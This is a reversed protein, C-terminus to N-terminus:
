APAPVRWTPEAPTGGPASRQWAELLLGEFARTFAQPQLLPSARLRTRAQARWAALAQPEAALRTAIAVFEADSTAIWDKHGIASLLSAGMRSPHTRGALTVVPVGMWLTECTTTAGNFPFSDLAIDIERYLELHSVLDPRWPNFVLRDPAVGQAEFFQAINAQNAPEALSRTKLFLRSGPVARLVQAWLGLTHDSLKAINNFSGFSVRGSGLVPPEGTPPEADPRYCFMSHPCHLVAEAAPAPHDATDIVRDSIRFDLAPLGTVTPYGLYGIQVPAVRRAFLALRGHATHGSLDVLVDIGDDRIRAALDGDLMEACDVWHHGLSKLRATVDDEFACNHYCFVEFRAHDHCALISEVFYTVSHRRFDGSVYGVRLRDGAALARPVPRPAGSDAGRGYAAHADVLAQPDEEHYLLTMLYASYGGPHHDMLAVSERFRELAEGVRRSQSLAAAIRQLSFADPALAHADHAAQLAAASQGMDNLVASLANLVPASPPNLRLWKEFGERALDDCALKRLCHGLHVCCDEEGPEISLAENFARAAEAYRHSRMLTVGLNKHLHANRPELALARRQAAEGEDSPRAARDPEADRLAKLALANGLNAHAAALDPNIALARRYCAVAGDLDDLTKLAIGLSVQAEAFQPQLEIARRYAAVAPELADAAKLVRGHSLHFEPQEPAIAIAAIVHALAADPRNSLLAAVGLLHQLDASGEHEPLLARLLAEAQAPANCSLHHQAQTLVERPANSREDIPAPKQLLSALPRSREPSSM